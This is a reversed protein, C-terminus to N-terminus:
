FMRESGRWVERVATVDAKRKVRVLDARRGPEIVGRDTLGAAHAPNATVMAVTQPLPIAGDEGSLKFAADLMSSPVYDSSIINLLGQQALTGAAINGSHSGGRVINPAGALVNMGNRRAAKAAEETTPFEAIVVGDEVAEDIHEATADDHSALSLKRERCLSAIYRRHKDSYRRSNEVQTRWTSELEENSLQYKRGFYARYQNLDAFQRQGPAHDMVSILRLLPHAQYPELHELVAPCSVECRLHFVHESRTLGHEQAEAIAESMARLTDDHHDSRMIDGARLADFVTTIGAAIIQADHAIVASLAPWKVGPRPAFNKELNDTHLEVLGPILYDGDLDAACPLRTRGRDLSLIVGRSVEVTGLFVEDRTVVKANTLLLDETM